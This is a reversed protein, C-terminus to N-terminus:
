RRRHRANQVDGLRNFIELSQTRSTECGAAFKCAPGAMVQGNEYRYADALL